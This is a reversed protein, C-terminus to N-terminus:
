AQPSRPQSGKTTGASATNCPSYSHAEGRLRASQPSVEARPQPASESGMARLPWPSWQIPEDARPVLPVGEAQRHAVSLGWKQTLVWLRVQTSTRYAKDGEGGLALGRGSLITPAQPLHTIRAGRSGLQTSKPVHCLRAFCTVGAGGPSTPIWSIM